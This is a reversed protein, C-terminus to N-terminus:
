GKEFIQVRDSGITFSEIPKLMRSKAISTQALDAIASLGDGGILMDGSNIWILRDIMEAKILSGVFRGGAEVMVSTIGRKGLAQMAKLLDPKGDKDATIEESEINKIANAKKSYLHLVDKKASAVLQCKPPISQSSSVVVRLPQKGDFGKLRCTLLPDDARLTGASTMIADHRSRLEHVYHRAAESTIWQSTGDKLAIRGDVSTAIKITVSPRSELRNLRYGKLFRSIEDELIGVSVEIGAEKLRGLGQGAVRKDPDEIGVVVRAIKAKLLADACPATKGQHNCPELTVFATAGIANKGAEKLALTEAHPRGGDGTWGRGLLKGDKVIVCGVAPNPAVRGEARRALSLAAGM